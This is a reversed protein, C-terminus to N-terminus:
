IQYKIYQSSVDAIDADHITSYQSTLNAIKIQQAEAASELRNINAGISVLMEEIDNMMADIEELSKAASEATSYDVSFDFLNFSINIDIFKDDGTGTDVKISSEFPRPTIDVVNTFTTYKGINIITNRDGNGGDIINNQGKYVM